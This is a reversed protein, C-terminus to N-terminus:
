RQGRFLRHLVVISVWAVGLAVLGLLGLFVLELAVLNM